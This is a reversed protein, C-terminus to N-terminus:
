DWNSLVIMLDVWGVFGDENLDTPCHWGSCWGWSAVILLLDPVGVLNDGDIDGAHVQSGAGGGGGDGAGGDKCEGCYDGSHNSLHAPIANPSICITQANEPNGPPVHCLLVKNGNHGCPFEDCGGLCTVSVAQNASATNDCADIATWTVTTTGEPFPDNCSLGDSRTCAVDAVTGCNDGTTPTGLSGPRASCGPADVVEISLDPPATITPRTQDITVPGLDSTEPVIPEGQPGTALENPFAPDDPAFQVIAPTPTCVDQIAEFTAVAVTVDRATGRKTPPVAVSYAILGKFPDHGITSCANPPAQAVTSCEFLEMTFPNGPVSAGGPEISVLTLLDIDYRLFFQAGVIEQPLGTARVEVRLVPHDSGLCEEDALLRLFADGQASGFHLPTADGGSRAFTAVSACLVIFPPGM